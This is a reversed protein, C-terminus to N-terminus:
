SDQACDGREAPRGLLAEARSLDEPRNINFFPDVPRAPFAVEAVRYRATWADVKRVGEDALARRLDAALLVPWLGVVPHVRGASAAMAIDARERTLAQALRAV